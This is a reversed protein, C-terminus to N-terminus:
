AVWFPPHDRHSGFHLCQLLFMDPVQYLGGIPHINHVGHPYIIDLPVSLPIPDLVLHSKNSLPVGLLESDVIVFYPSPYSSQFGDPHCGSNGCLVAQFKPPDVENSCVQITQCLLIDVHFLGFAEDFWSELVIYALEDMCDVTCHLACM